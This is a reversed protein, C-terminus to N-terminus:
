KSFFIQTREQMSLKLIDSLAVIESAKFDNKNDIKKALGYPSLNLKEAIHKYKYGARTIAGRLATSDTM